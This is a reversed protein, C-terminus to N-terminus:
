ARGCRPESRTRRPASRDASSAAPGRKREAHFSRAKGTSGPSIVNAQISPSRRNWDPFSYALSGISWERPCRPRSPISPRLAAAGAGRAGEPSCRRPSTVPRVLLQFRNVAIQDAGTEAEDLFLLRRRAVHHKEAHRRALRHRARRAVELLPRFDDVDARVEPELVAGQELADVLGRVRAPLEDLLRRVAGCLQVPFPDGLRAQHGVGAAEGVRADESQRRQGPLM